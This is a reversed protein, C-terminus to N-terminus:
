EVVRFTVTDSCIKGQWCPPTTEETTYSQVCLVIWYTGPSIREVNALYLPNIVLSEYLLSSGAGLEAYEVPPRDQSDLYVDPIRLLNAGTGEVGGLSSCVNCTCDMDYSTVHLNKYPVLFAEHSPNSIFLQPIPIHPLTLDSADKSPDRLGDLYHNCEQVSFVTDNIIASVTISDFAHPKPLRKRYESLSWEPGSSICSIQMLLGLTLVIWISPRTADQEHRTM